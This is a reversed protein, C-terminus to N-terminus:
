EEVERDLGASAQAIGDSILNTGVALLGIAAVPLLVAWPQVVLGIRNENIMLGWDAAPPQLGLGLFGLGAVLGIQLSEGAIDGLHHLHMEGMDGIDVLRQMSRIRVVDFWGESALRMM